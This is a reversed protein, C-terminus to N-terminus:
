GNCIVPNAPIDNNDNIDTSYLAAGGGICLAAGVCPAHLLVSSGPHGPLGCATARAWLVSASRCGLQQRPRDGEDMDDDHSNDTDSRVTHEYLAGPSVRRVPVASAAAQTLRTGPDGPPVAYACVSGFCCGDPCRCGDQLAQTRTVAHALLEGAKGGAISATTFSLGADPGADAAKQYVQCLALAHVEDEDSEGIPCCFAHAGPKGGGLPCDKYSHYVVGRDVKACRYSRQVARTEQPDFAVPKGAGHDMGPRYGNLGGHPAAAAKLAPAGGKQNKIFHELIRLKDVVVKLLQKAESDDGTPITAAAATGVAGGPALYFDPVLRDYLQRRRSTETPRWDDARNDRVLRYEKALVPRPDERAPYRFASHEEQHSIRVGSPVCGKVLDILGRRGDRDTSCDTALFFRDAASDVEVVESFVDYVLEHVLPIVEKNPDDFYFLALDLGVTSFETKLLMILKGLTDGDKSKGSFKVRKGGLVTERLNKAWKRQQGAARVKKVLDSHSLERVGEPLRIGSDIDSENLICYGSVMKEQTPSRGHLRAAKKLTAVNQQRQQAVRGKQASAASIGLKQM